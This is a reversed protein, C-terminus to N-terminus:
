PAGVSIAKRHTIVHKRWDGRGRGQSMLLLEADQRDLDMAAAIHDVAACFQEYHDPGNRDSVTFDSSVTTASKWTCTVNMLVMSPNGTLVNVSCGTWQDMIYGMDNVGPGRLFFILKTFYAPGMGPLEGKLRLEHLLRYAERRTLKNFRVKDVAERWRDQQSFLMKGNSARMGGWALIVACLTVTTVSQDSALKFLVDRNPKSTQKEIGAPVKFDAPLQLSNYWDLGTRSAAEETQRCYNARMKKLVDLHNRDFPSQHLEARNAM